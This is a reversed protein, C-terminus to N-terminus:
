ILRPRKENADGFLRDLPAVSSGPPSSILRQIWKQTHETNAMEMGSKRIGSGRESRKQKNTSLDGGFPSITGCPSHTSSFSRRENAAVM